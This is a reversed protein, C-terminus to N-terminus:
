EKDEEEAEKHHGTYCKKLIKGRWRNLIAMGDQNWTENWISNEETAQFCRVYDSEVARIKSQKKGLQHGWKVVTYCFLLKLSHLPSVYKQLKRLYTNKNWTVKKKATRGISNTKFIQWRIWCWNNNIGLMLPTVNKKVLQVIKLDWVEEWM